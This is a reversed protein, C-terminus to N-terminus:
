KLRFFVGATIYFVYGRISELEQSSLLLSFPPKTLASSEMRISYKKTFSYEYGFLAGLAAPSNRVGIWYVNRSPKRNHLLVSLQYFTLKNLDGGADWEGGSVGVAFSIPSFNLRLTLNASNYQFGLYPKFLFVFGETGSVHWATPFSILEIGGIGSIKGHAYYANHFLSFSTTPYTKIYITDEHESVGWINLAPAIGLEHIEGVRNYPAVMENQAHPSYVVPACSGIFVSELLLCSCLLCKRSSKM